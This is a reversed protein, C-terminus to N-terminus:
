KALPDKGKPNREYRELIQLIKHATTDSEEKVGADGVFKFNEVRVFYTKGARDYAQTDFVVRPNFEDYAPNKPDSPMAAMVTVDKLLTALRRARADAFINEGQWCVVPLGKLKGVKIADDMSYLRPGDALFELEEKTPEAATAFAAAMLMLGLTKM